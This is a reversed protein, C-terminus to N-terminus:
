QGSAEPLQDSIQAAMEAIDRAANPHALERAAHSMRQLSQADQLLAAITEALWVGELKSEEVVV